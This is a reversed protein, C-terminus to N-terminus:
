IMQTIATALEPDVPARKTYRICRFATCLLTRRPLSEPQDHVLRLLGALLEDHSEEWAECALDVRKEPESACRELIRWFLWLRM